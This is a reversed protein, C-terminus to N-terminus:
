PTTENITLDIVLKANKWVPIEKVYDVRVNWTGAQPGSKIIIKDYPIMQQQINLRNFIQMQLDSKLLDPNQRAEILTNRISKQIVSSDYYPTFLKFSFVTAGLLIIISLLNFFSIFGRQTKMFEKNM